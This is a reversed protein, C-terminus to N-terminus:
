SVVPERDAMEVMMSELWISFESIKPREFIEVPDVVVGYHYEIATMLVTAVLSDGGLGFFDDDPSVRDVILITALMDAVTPKTKATMGTGM